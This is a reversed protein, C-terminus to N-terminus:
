KPLCVGEATVSGKPLSIAAASSTSPPTCTRESDACDSSGDACTCQLTSLPACVKRHFACVTNSDQALCSDYCGLKVCALAAVNGCDPNTLCGTQRECVASGALSGTPIPTQCFFGAPCDDDNCIGEHCHLPLKCDSDIACSVADKPPADYACAQTCYSPLGQATLCSFQTCNPDRTLNTAETVVSEGTIPTAVAVFNPSQCLAGTDDATCGSTTSWACVLWLTLWPARYLSKLSM